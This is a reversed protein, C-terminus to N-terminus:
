LNTTIKKSSNTIQHFKKDSHLNPIIFLHLKSVGLNEQCRGPFLCNLILIRQFSQWSITANNNMQLFKLSM